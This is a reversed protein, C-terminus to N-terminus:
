RRPCLAGPQAPQVVQTSLDSHVFLPLDQRVMRTSEGTEVCSRFAIAPRRPRMLRIAIAPISHRSNSAQNQVTIRPGVSDPLRNCSRGWGFGACARQSMRLSGGPKGCRSSRGLIAPSTGREPWLCSTTGMLWSLEPGYSTKRTPMKRM